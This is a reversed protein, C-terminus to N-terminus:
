NADGLVSRLAQLTQEKNMGVKYLRLRIAALQIIRWPSKSLEEYDVPLNIEKLAARAGEPTLDTAPLKVATKPPERPPTKSSAEVPVEQTVLEVKGEAILSEPNTIEITEGVELYPNEFPEWNPDVKKVLAM